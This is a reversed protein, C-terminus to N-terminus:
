SCGLNTAAYIVEDRGQVCRREGVFVRFQLPPIREFEKLVADCMEDSFTAADVTPPVDGNSSM